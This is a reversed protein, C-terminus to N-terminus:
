ATGIVATITMSSGTATGTGKASIRIFRDKIQVPIRYSGSAGLQHEGLSDVENSGSINGFCEQYFNINDASGEFKLEASVLSVLDLDIYLILQNQHNVQSVDLTDGLVTADVYSNTLETAPRIVKTIYDQFSVQSM